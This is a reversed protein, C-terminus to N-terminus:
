LFLHSYFSPTPSPPLSPTLPLPPLSSRIISPVLKSATYSVLTLDLMHHSWYVQTQCNFSILWAFFIVIQLGEIFIDLLSNFLMQHGIFAVNLTYFLSVSKNTLDHLSFIVLSVFSHKWKEHWGWVFCIISFLSNMEATVASPVVVCHDNFGNYRILCYCNFSSCVIWLLTLYLKDSRYGQRFDFRVVPRCLSAQTYHPIVAM